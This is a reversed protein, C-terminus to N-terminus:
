DILRSVSKTSFRRTNVFYKTVLRFYNTFASDVMIKKLFAMMVNNKCLNTSIHGKGSTITSFKPVVLIGINFSYLFETLSFAPRRLLM